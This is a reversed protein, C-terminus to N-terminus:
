LGLYADYFEESERRLVDLLCDYLFVGFAVDDFDFGVDLIMGGSPSNELVKVSLYEGIKVEPRFLRKVEM